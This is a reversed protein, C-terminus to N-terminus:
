TTEENYYIAKKSHNTSRALIYEAFSEMGNLDQIQMTRADAKEVFAAGDPDGRKHFIGLKSSWFDQKDMWGLLYVVSQSARCFIYVDCDRDKQSDTIHVTYHPLPITTCAKTKVDVKVGEVLFDFDYSNFGCHEFELGEFDRLFIGFAVEGLLGVFQGAGKDLITTVNFRSGTEKARAYEVWTGHIPLLQIM